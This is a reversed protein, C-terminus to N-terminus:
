KGVFGTHVKGNEIAQTSFYVPIALMTGLILTSIILQAKTM